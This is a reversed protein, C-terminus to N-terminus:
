LLGNMNLASVAFESVGRLKAALAKLEQVEEVLHFPTTELPLPERAETNGTTRDIFEM